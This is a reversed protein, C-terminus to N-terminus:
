LKEKTNSFDNRKGSKLSIYFVGILAVVFLLLTAAASGYGIDTYDFLHRRVFVSMTSSASNGSTMMYVLDFIRVADLTRFLVAVAITKYMLPLTIRTFKKIPPIGDVDAVEFCDQPLSQLGALLLLAMYPTTKWVDVIIISIISMLNSAIWPIPSDIINMYILIHNIIGYIDNLMWSWMQASVITPIVWPILVAVRLFSRGKFNKHLVLALMMGIILEFFVSVFTIIGTNRISQWWEQDRLLNTFNELGIFTHCDLCELSADTFSFYVTRLVPWGTSVCLCILCPLLFLWHFNQKKLFFLRDM